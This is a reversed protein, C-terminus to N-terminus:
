LTREGGGDMWQLASHACLWDATIYELILVAENKEETGCVSKFLIATPFHTLKASPIGGRVLMMMMMQQWPLPPGVGGWRSHWSFIDAGYQTCFRRYNSIRTSILSFEVPQENSYAKDTQWWWWRVVSTTPQYTTCILNYNSGGITKGCILM